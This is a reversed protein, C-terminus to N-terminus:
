IAGHSVSIPFLSNSALSGFVFISNSDSAFCDNPRIRNYRLLATLKINMDNYIGGSNAGTGGVRLSMM